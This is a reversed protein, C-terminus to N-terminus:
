DAWQANTLIKAIACQLADSICNLLNYTQPPHLPPPCPLPAGWPSFGYAPDDPRQVARREVNCERALHATSVTSGTNCM